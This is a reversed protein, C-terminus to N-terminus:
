KILSSKFDSIGSKEFRKSFHILLWANDALESFRNKQILYVALVKM